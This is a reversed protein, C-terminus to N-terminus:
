PNNSSLRWDVGLMRSARGMGVIVMRAFDAPGNGWGGDRWLAAFVVGQVTLLDNPRDDLHNALLKALRCAISNEPPFVTLRVQSALDLFILCKSPQDGRWAALLGTGPVSSDNPRGDLHNALM